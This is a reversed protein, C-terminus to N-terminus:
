IAAQAFRRRLRARVWVGVLNLGVVITILLFTTTYVMPIAAESDPSQFGLDYIHSGLHMFRREPHIFPFEGSIPLSAAEKMAGVLMLPAVEGAGRAIALITGTMIGPMARPLVIRRITQWKTAGCAYSGERMSGPVASLAEETAVIVVPLTLLALTLSAWLIGGGGFVPQNGYEPFFLPDVVDGGLWYCFFGLGFVGFVISPVGALNNVAVRVVSVALGQKAYERLYLAALVGFPVVAFCMLLTLLVTGFIAPYVGGETNAKRPDEFLFEFWRDVYVAVSAFFGITNARYARVIDWIEVLESRGDATRVVLAPRRAEQEIASAREQLRASAEANVRALEEARAVAAAHETSGEGRELAVKRAELEAARSRRSLEGIEHEIITNYKARAEEAVALARQFEPWAAEPGDVRREGDVFAELEGYYRGGKFREVALAWEPRESVREFRGDLGQTDNAVAFDDYWATRAKSTDSLDVSRVLRRETRGESARLAAVAEEGIASAIEEIQAADLVREESGRLEGLVVEGSTTTFRVVDEPWFTAVGRSIVLALLGLVMVLGLALSGGTLWVM